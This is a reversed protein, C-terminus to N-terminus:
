ASTPTRVPHDVGMVDGADSWGVIMRAAMSISALVSNKPSM